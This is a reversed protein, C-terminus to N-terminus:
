PIMFRFRQEGCRFFCGSTLLVAAISVWVGNRTPEAQIACVGDRQRRIVAHRNALLPDDLAIDAGGGLRGVVSEEGRLPFALGDEVPPHEMLVPWVTQPVQWGGVDMTGGDALPVVPPRLPNRLRFRRAGLIVVDNEHLVARMCRVFTGNSSQCDHLQWQFGGRWPVRRIEAHQKSIWPDNPVQVDGAARGITLVEQRLRVEEGRDSSGDDLVTLVPVPPRCSPRYDHVDEPAFPGGAALGEYVPGAQPRPPEAERLWQVIKRTGPIEDADAPGMDRAGAQRGFQADAMPDGNGRLGECSTYPAPRSLAPGFERDFSSALPTPSRELLM